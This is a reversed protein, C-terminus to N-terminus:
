LIIVYKNNKENSIIYHHGEGFRSDDTIIYM